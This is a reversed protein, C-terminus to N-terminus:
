ELVSRPTPAPTARAPSRFLQAAADIAVAHDMTGCGEALRECLRFLADPHSILNEAADASVLGLHRALRDKDSTRLVEALAAYLAVTDAAPQDATTNQLGSM